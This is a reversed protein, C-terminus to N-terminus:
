GKIAQKYTAENLIVFVPKHGYSLLKSQTSLNMVRFRLTRRKEVSTCEPVGTVSFFFQARTKIGEVYPLGDPSVWLDYCYLDDECKAFM